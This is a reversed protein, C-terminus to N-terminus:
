KKTLLEKFKATIEPFRSQEYEWCAKYATSIYWDAMPQPFKYFENKASIMKQRADERRKQELDTNVKEHQVMEQTLLDQLSKPLKRWSNLNMIALTPSQFFPHDIVYKSVEQGALSVWVDLACGAIGEVLGREMATYNDSIKVPTVSAGWAIAAPRAASACGIRLGVFDEKTAVKKKLFTYFFPDKSPAARGLYKMNYKNHLEDIYYYAGGPKREEQPTLETLMVASIGPVIGEYFTAPVMALDVVGKQVAAALDLQGIVEPGGRFNILLQGKAKENVKDFMKQFDMTERATKPLMSAWYMVFRDACMSESPLAGLLFVFSICSLLTLLGRNKM